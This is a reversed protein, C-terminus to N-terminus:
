KEAGFFYKGRKLGELGSEGGLVEKERKKLRFKWNSRKRFHREKENERISIRIM